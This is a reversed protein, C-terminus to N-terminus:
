SKPAAIKRAGRKVAATEVNATPATATEVEPATERVFTALGQNVLGKALADPVDVPKGAPSHVGHILIDATPAIKM